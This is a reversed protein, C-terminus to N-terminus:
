TEQVMMRIPLQELLQQRVGVVNIHDRFSFYGATKILELSNSYEDESMVHSEYQIIAPRSRGFDYLCLLEYDYGEADIQLLDVKDPRYLDFLTDFTITEVTEEAICTALNDPVEIRDINQLNTKVYGIDIHHELHSKKFSALGTAWREQSLSLKFLARQGDENAIAANVFVINDHGAYNQVLQEFVSRQPEVLIGSWHYRKVLHYLPDGLRGDNAGVQVFFVDDISNAYARMLDQFNRILSIETM